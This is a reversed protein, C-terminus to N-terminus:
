VAHCMENHPHVTKALFIGIVEKAGCDILKNATCAFTQGRTIVDDILIVNFDKVSYEDIKFDAAPNMKKGYLHGAGEDNLKTITEIDCPCDTEQEIYASLHKYRRITNLQSSAPIFCVRTKGTFISSKIENIYKVLLQKIQPPCYGDKFNYVTQRAQKQEVTATFRVPVYEMLYLYRFDRM